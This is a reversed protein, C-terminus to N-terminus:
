RGPAHALERHIETPTSYDVGVVSFGFLEDFYRQYGDWDSLERLNESTLRLWAETVAAQVEPRLELDDLRIRGEADTAPTVGPGVHDRFLRVIQEIPGEHTGDAKMVKFLISMYAPVSPIAAAAQSAIAKNISVWAGGSLDSLSERLTAATRELHEKARGITGSRYIAHTAQPGIYSYAVTRFEQALLGAKHLTGVWSAWDEGGMVKTTSEIEEDTAPDIHASGVEGTRLNVTKGTYTAGIPKLASHWTTGDPDQRRPAALSYILLDLPGYRERLAEVAEHKTDPSFADGNITELHRREAAALRHAEALNYWGGSGTKEPESPRELCVGLTAAGYGFCACLTSALGYGTSSGVVLVNGLGTGAGSHKAVEVQWQVMRACGDPHATLSIFGRMRPEVVQKAM